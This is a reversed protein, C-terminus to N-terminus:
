RMPMCCRMPAPLAPTNFSFDPGALGHRARIRLALQGLSASPQLDLPCHPPIRKCRRATARRPFASILLPPASSCDWDGAHAASLGAQELATSITADLVADLRAQESVADSGMPAAGRLTRYPLSHTRGAYHAVASAPPTLGADLATLNVDTGRGLATHLGAGIFYCAPM